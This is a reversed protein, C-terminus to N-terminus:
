ADSCYARMSLPLNSNSSLDTFCCVRTRQWHSIVNLSIQHFNLCKVGNVVFLYTLSFKLFASLSVMNGSKFIQFLYLSLGNTWFARLREAVFNYHNSWGMLKPDNFVIKIEHCSLRRNLVTHMAYWSDAPSSDPSVCCDIAVQGTIIYPFINFQCLIMLKM